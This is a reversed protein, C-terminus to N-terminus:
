TVDRLLFKTLAVVERLWLPKFYVIANLACLEDLVTDDLLYDGTVIAVATRHYGEQARLRRM